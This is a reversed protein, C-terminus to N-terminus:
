VSASSAVQSLRSLRLDALGSLTNALLRALPGSRSVDHTVVTSGFASATQWVSTEHLGPVNWKMVITDPAILSYRFSGRLGRIGTLAYAVNEQAERPGALEVFAPNWEPLRVPDLLIARVTTPEADISRTSTDTNM